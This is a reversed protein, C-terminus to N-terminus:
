CIGLLLSREGWGWGARGIRKRGGRANARGIARWGCGMALAQIDIVESRAESPSLPQTQTALIRSHTSSNHIQRSDQERRETLTHTDTHAERERGSHATRHCEKERM